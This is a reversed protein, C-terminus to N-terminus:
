GLVHRAFANRCGRCPGRKRGAAVQEIGATIPAPKANGQILNGSLALTGPREGVGSLDLNFPAIAVGNRMAFRDLHAIIHFPEQPADDGAKAPAGGATTNSGNHGLM